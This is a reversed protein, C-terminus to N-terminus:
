FGNVLHAGSPGLAAQRHCMPQLVVYDRHHWETSVLVHLVECWQHCAKGESGRFPDPM